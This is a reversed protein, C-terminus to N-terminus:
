HKLAFSGAISQTNGSNKVYLAGGMEPPAYPATSSPPGYFSGTMTGSMGNTSVVAGTFSNSTIVSRNITMPSQTSLNLSNESQPTTLGNGSIHTNSTSFNIAGNGGFNVQAQADAGLLYTGPSAPTSDSTVYQGVFYGSYTASGTTPLDISRTLVGESFAGGVQTWPSSGTAKTWMGLTSYNLPFSTSTPNLYTFTVTGAPAGSTTYATATATELCGTCGGTFDLPGSSLTSGTTPDFTVVFSPEAQGSPLSFASVTIKLNGSTPTAGLVSTQIPVMQPITSDVAVPAMAGGIPDAATATALSSPYNYSLGSLVSAPGGGGGGGGGACGALALLGCVAAPMLATRKLRSFGRFLRVKSIGNDLLSAMQM